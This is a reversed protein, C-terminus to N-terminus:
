GHVQRVVIHTTFQATLYAVVPLLLPMVVLTIFVMPSLYIKLGPWVLLVAALTIGALISAFVWGLLSRLVVQRTVLRTVFEDTAGIYQLIALSARQGRLGARVTLSVLMVMIAVMVSSLVLTAIQAVRVGRSVAELLNRADDIEAAPFRQRITQELAKRDISERVGIDLVVPLPVQTEAELYPALLREVQVRSLEQVDVVGPLQLVDAKLKSVEEAPTDSLLYVSLRSQQALEWARYVNELTMLGAGGLAAVWGLLATMVVLLRFVADKELSLAKRASKAIPNLLM